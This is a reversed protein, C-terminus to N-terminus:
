ISHQQVDSIGLNIAMFKGCAFRETRFNRECHAHLLAQPATFSRSTIFVNNSAFCTEFAHFLLPM